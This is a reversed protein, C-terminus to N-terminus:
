STVWTITFNTPDGSSNAFDASITPMAGHPRNVVVNHFVATFAITCGSEAQLTVLGTMGIWDFAGMGTPDFPKKGGADRILKGTISGTFGGAGLKHGEWKAGFAPPV